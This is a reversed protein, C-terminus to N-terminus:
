CSADALIIRSEHGHHGTQHGRDALRESNPPCWPRMLTWSEPAAWLAVAKEKAGLRIHTYHQRMKASLHGAMSEMVSEPVGAEALDTIATHRLDHIRLGALGAKRTLSRWATRVSRQPRGFDFNRNECVCFIFNEPKAEGFVEAMEFLRAFATRAEPNLVVERRGAQTKSKSIRWLAAFLDVDQFRTNLIEHKRATTNTAIVGVYLVRYWRPNSRAVRFLRAKEVATLARRILERAKAMKVDDKIRDWHKIKKLLLRLLELEMTITRQSVREALRQAQYGRVSEADIKRLAVTGLLRKLPKGRESEIRL